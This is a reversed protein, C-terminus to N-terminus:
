SDIPNLCASQCVKKLYYSLLDRTFTLAEPDLLFYKGFLMRSATSTDAGGAQQAQRSKEGKIINTTAHRPGMLDSSM